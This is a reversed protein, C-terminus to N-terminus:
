VADTKAEEVKVEPMNPVPPAIPSVLISHTNNGTMPVGQVELLHVSAGFVGTILSASKEDVILLYQKSM